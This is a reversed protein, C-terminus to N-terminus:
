DDLLAALAHRLLLVALQKALSAVLAAVLLLRGSVSRRDESPRKTDTGADGGQRSSTMFDIVTASSASREPVGSM